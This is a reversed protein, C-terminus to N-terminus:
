DTGVFCVRGGKPVQERARGPTHAPFSGHPARPHKCFTIALFKYLFIVYFGNRPCACIKNPPDPFDLSSYIAPASSNLIEPGILMVAAGRPQKRGNVQIGILNVRSETVKKIKKEKQGSFRKRFGADTCSYRNGCFISLADWPLRVRQWAACRFSSDRNRCM